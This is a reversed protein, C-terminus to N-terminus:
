LTILHQDTADTCRTGRIAAQLDSTVLDDIVVTSFRDGFSEYSKSVRSAKNSRVASVIGTSTLEVGYSQTVHVFGRVTYGERLLEDVVNSGVFGSAGTVQLYVLRDSSEGRSISSHTGRVLVTSMILCVLLLRHTLNYIDRISEPGFHNNM